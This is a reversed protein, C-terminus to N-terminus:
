ADPVDVAAPGADPAPGGRDPWLAVAALLVLLAVVVTSVIGARAERDTVRV